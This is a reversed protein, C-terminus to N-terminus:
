RRVIGGDKGLRSFNKANGSYRREMTSLKESLSLYIVHEAYAAERKAEELRVSFRFFVLM